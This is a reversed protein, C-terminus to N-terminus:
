DAISVVSFRLTPSAAWVDAVGVLVAVDVRAGASTAVLSSTTAVAVRRFGCAVALGCAAAIAVCVGEATGAALGPADAVAGPTATTAVGVPSAASATVEEGAGVSARVAEDLDMVGAGAIGVTPCGVDVCVGAM